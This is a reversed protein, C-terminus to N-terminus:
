KTLWEMAKAENDFQKIRAGRGSAMIVLATIHKIFRNAGVIAIKEYSMTTLRKFAAQRASLTQSGVRSMNVLFKLPRDPQTAQLRQIAKASQANLHDLTTEDQDGELISHIIGQRDLLVHNTM